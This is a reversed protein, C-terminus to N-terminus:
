DTHYDTHIDHKVKQEVNILQASGWLSWAKRSGNTWLLFERWIHHSHKNLKWILHSKFNQADSLLKLVFVHLSWITECVDPPCAEIVEVLHLKLDQIIVEMRVYASGWAAVDVGTQM